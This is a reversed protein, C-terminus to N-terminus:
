ELLNPLKALQNQWHHPQPQSALYRHWWQYLLLSLSGCPPCITTCSYELLNGCLSQCHNSSPVDGNSDRESTGCDCRWVEHLQKGNGTQYCRIAGSPLLWVQKIHQSWHSLQIATQYMKRHQYQPVNCNRQVYIPKHQRALWTTWRQSQNQQTRLTSPKTKCSQNSHKM